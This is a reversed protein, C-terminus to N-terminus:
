SFALGQFCFFPDLIGFIENDTIQSCHTLVGKERGGRPSINVTESVVVVSGHSVNQVRNGRSFQFSNGGFNVVRPKVIVEIIFSAFESQGFSGPSEGWGGGM